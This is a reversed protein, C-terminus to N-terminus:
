TWSGLAPEAPFLLAPEADRAESMAWLSAIQIRTFRYGAAILEIEPESAPLGAIALLTRVAALDELDVVRESL